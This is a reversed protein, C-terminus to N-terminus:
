VKRREKRITFLNQNKIRHILFFFFLVFCLEMETSIQLEPNENTVHKSM